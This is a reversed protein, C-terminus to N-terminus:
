YGGSNIANKSSKVPTTLARLTIVSQLCTPANAAPPPGKRGILFYIVIKCFAVDERRLTIKTADRAMRAAPTSPAAGADADALVGGDTAGAVSVAVGGGPCQTAFDGM